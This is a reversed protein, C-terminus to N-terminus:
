HKTVGEILVGTLIALAFFSISGLLYAALAKLYASAKKQEFFQGIAWTSYVLILLSAYQLLKVHTIGQVLAFAALVLMGMGMIFCLLILIEFINYPQKKFFLKTWLAIFVGLIINGYGYHAQIWKLITGTATKKSETLNMYGEEIHFFNNILSYVLSTVIIFIIPKVLRSRNHNLYLRINQGPRILLERITYFIGKEL